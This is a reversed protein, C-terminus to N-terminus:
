KKTYQVSDDQYIRRYVGDEDATYTHMEEDDIEEILDLILSLESETYITNLYNLIEIRRKNPPLEEFSSGARAKAIAKLVNMAWSGSRHNVSYIAGPVEKIIGKKKTSQIEKQKGQLTLYDEYKMVYTANDLAFDDQKDRNNYIREAIIIADNTVDTGLYDDQIVFFNYHYFPNKDDDYFIKEPSKCKLTKLFELRTFPNILKKEKSVIWNDDSPNVSKTKLESKKEIEPLSISGGQCKPMSLEAVETLGQLNRGIRDELKKIDRNKIIFYTNKSILNAKRLKLAEKIYINRTEFLRIITDDFFYGKYMYQLLEDDNLNLELIISQIFAKSVKKDEYLSEIDSLIIKKSDFLGKITAEGCWEAISALTIIGRDYFFLLDDESDIKDYIFDVLKESVDEISNEENIFVNKYVNIIIDIIDLEQVDKRFSHKYNLYKEGINKVSIDKTFSVENYYKTFFTDNIKKGKYLNILYSDDIDRRRYLEIVVDDLSFNDNNHYREIIKDRKYGLVKTGWIYNNISYDLISEIENNSLSIVNFIKPDIFDVNIVGNLLLQKVNDLENKPLFVGDVYRNLTDLSSKNKSKNMKSLLVQLEKFARLAELSDVEENEIKKEIFREVAYILKEINMYYSYKKLQKVLTSILKENSINEDVELFKILDKIRFNRDTPREKEVVNKFFEYFNICRLIHKGIEPDYFLDIIENYNMDGFLNNLGEKIGLSALIGAIDNFYPKNKDKNIKVNEFVERSDSFCIEAYEFYVDYDPIIMKINKGIKLYYELLEFSTVSEEENQTLEFKHFLGEIQNKISNFDINDFSNNYIANILNFLIKASNLIYKNRDLYPEMERLKDLTESDTHKNNNFAIYEKTKQFDDCILPITFNTVTLKILGSSLAVIDEETLKEHLHKQLVNRCISTIISSISSVDVDNYKKM